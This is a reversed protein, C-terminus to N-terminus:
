GPFQYPTRTERSDAVQHPPLSWEAEFVLEYDTLTIRDGATLPRTDRVRRGNVAVGNKSHDHLKHRGLQADWGISCHEKSVTGSPLCVEGAPDRGVRMLRRHIPFPGAATPGSVVRLWHPTIEAERCDEAAITTDTDDAQAEIAALCAMLGSMRAFRRGPDSELCRRCVDALERYAPDPVAPPQGPPSRRGASIWPCLIGSRVTAAKRRAPPTTTVPQRYSLWNTTHSVRGSTSAAGREVVRAAAHGRADTSSRGPTPPSLGSEEREGDAVGTEGHM